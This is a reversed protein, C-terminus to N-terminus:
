PNQLRDDSTSGSPDARSSRRQRSSSISAPQRPPLRVENVYTGSPGGLDLLHHASRRVVSGGRVLKALEVEFGIMDDAIWDSLDRLRTAVDRPGRERCVIGLRAVAM